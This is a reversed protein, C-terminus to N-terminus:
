RKAASVEALFSDFKGKSAALAQQVRHMPVGVKFRREVGSGKYPIEELVGAKLLAPLVRDAFDSARSGFKLRLVSENVQTARLFIRLARELLVTEEDPESIDTALSLQKAPKVTFGYQALAQVIQAPDFLQDDRDLRLLSGCECDELTASVRMNLGIELREFRCRIFSCAHLEAGELSTPEFYGGKVTLGTLKRARLADSPFTM